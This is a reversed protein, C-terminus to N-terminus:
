IVSFTATESDLKWWKFFGYPFVGAEGTTGVVVVTDGELKMRGELAMAGVVADRLMRILPAAEEATRRYCFVARLDARVCMVKWLSYAIKRNDRSNELEVVGVPFRWANDGRPFAVVDLSLYEHRSEPLLDLRHGKAAARLGIAEFAKVAAATMATTWMALQAAQAAEKLVEAYEPQRVVSFLADRWQSTM